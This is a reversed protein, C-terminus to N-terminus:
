RPFLESDNTNTTTKTHLHSKRFQSPSIGFYKVFNRHYHAHDFFGLQQSIQTIPESGLLLECSHKIKSEMILGTLTTDLSAKVLKNVYQPHLNLAKAILKLIDKTPLEINSQLLSLIQPLRPDMNPLDIDYQDYYADCLIILLNLLCNIKYQYTLEQNSLTITKYSVIISEIDNIAAESLELHIIQDTKKNLLNMFFTSFMPAKTLPNSETLFTITPLFYVNQVQWGDIDGIAHSQGIPILYVSGRQLDRSSGHYKHQAQGALTIGIEFFEHAHLNHIIDKNYMFSESSLIIQDNLKVHSNKFIDITNTM